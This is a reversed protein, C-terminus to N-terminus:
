RVIDLSSSPVDWHGAGRGTVGDSAGVLVPPSSGESRALWHINHDKQLFGSTIGLGGRKHKNKAIMQKIERWSEALREERMSPSYNLICRPIDNPPITPCCPGIAGTESRLQFRSPFARVLGSPSDKENPMM